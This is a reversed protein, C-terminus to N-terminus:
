TRGREELDALPIGLASAIALGTEESCTAGRCVSSITIRSLGAVKALSTQSVKQAKMIRKLKEEKLKMDDGKKLVTTQNHM